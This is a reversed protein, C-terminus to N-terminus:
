PWQSESDESLRSRVRRSWSITSRRRVLRRTSRRDCLMVTRFAVLSVASGENYRGNLMDTQHSVRHNDDNNSDDEIWEEHLEMGRKNIELVDMGQKQSRISNRNAKRRQDNDTV